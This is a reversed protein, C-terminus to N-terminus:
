LVHASLCALYTLVYARLARSCTLACSVNVLSCTLVCLVNARSCTFCTPVDARWCTLCTPVHGCLCSLCKPVHVRSALLKASEWIEYQCNYIPLMLELMKIFSSVTKNVNWFKWKFNIETQSLFVFNVWFSSFM